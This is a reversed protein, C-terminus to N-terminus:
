APQAETKQCAQTAPPAFSTVPRAPNHGPAPPHAGTEQYAQGALPRDPTVRQNPHAPFARTEDYHQGTQLCHHLMGIGRNTLNRAAASYSDGHERRATFHAHAAPSHAIMPLAWLYAAQGLRKNRVVRRTVITKMGSARTIPATGAFAKLGRATAFRTRDDGIEALIRAGLVTGLGPFSTIIAGDPHQGFATTLSEQLRAVSDVATDLAQLLASAHEAMAAEVLLPQRLQECHLAAHIAAVAAPIGRTRGARRLAATLASKRALQGRAPSPALRLTARAERSALDPFAALFAPYYQRLVSRLKSAIQMRDWVADQHARALVHISQALESDSPLPRHSHPDTRLINALVLADGADSKARSPSHRDRYRSVALPNIAVLPVGAARLAAPLLGKATEIAVTIPGASARQQEALMSMLQSFGAVTDGIRMRALQTGTEDVVSVDHHNEAWDIGCWLQV